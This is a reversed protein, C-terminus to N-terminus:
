AAEGHAVLWEVFLHHSKLYNTIEDIDITPQTYDEDPDYATIRTTTRERNQVREDPM